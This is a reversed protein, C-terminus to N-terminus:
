PLLGRAMVAAAVSRISLLLAAQRLSLRRELATQRVHGYRDRMREALRHLVEAETMQEQQTEQTYELYSVFVGGANCLIDPLVTIGRAHLLDDAEPTTPGNAGEAIVGAKINHANDRTIQNGAAAPVLVDCPMELLADRPVTRGVAEAWRRRTIELDCNSTTATTAAQTAESRGSLMRNVTPSANEIPAEASNGASTSPMKQFRALRGPATAPM